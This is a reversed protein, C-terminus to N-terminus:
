PLQADMGRIVTDLEEFAQSARFRNYLAEENRIRNMMDRNIQSLPVSVQVFAQFRNNDLTFTQRESIRTGSFTQRAVQRSVLETLQVVEPNEYGAEAMFLKMMATVHTEITNAAEVMAMQYAGTEALQQNVRVLNGYTLLYEGTGQVGYWRPQSVEQPTRVRGGGGCAAMFLTAIIVVIIMMRYVKM